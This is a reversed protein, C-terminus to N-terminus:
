DKTILGDVVKPFKANFPSAKWTICPNKEVMTGIWVVNKSRTRTLGYGFEFDINLLEKMKNPMNDKMSICLERSDEYAVTAKDYMPVWHVEYLPDVAGSASLNQTIPIIPEQVIADTGDMAHRTLNMVERWKLGYFNPYRNVDGFLASGEGYTCDFNKFQDFNDLNDLTDNTALVCLDVMGGNAGKLFGRAKKLKQPTMGEDNPGIFDLDGKVITEGQSEQTPCFTIPGCLTKIFDKDLTRGRGEYISDVITQERNKGYRREDPTVCFTGGLDCKQFSIAYRSTKNMALDAKQDTIKKPEADALNRYLKGEIGNTKVRTTLADVLGNHERMRDELMGMLIPEDFDSPLIGDIKAM